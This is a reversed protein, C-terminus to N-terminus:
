EGDDMMEMKADEFHSVQDESYGQTSERM